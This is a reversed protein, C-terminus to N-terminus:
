FTAKFQFSLLFYVVTYERFLMEVFVLYKNSQKPFFLVREGMIYLLKRLMSAFNMGKKDVLYRDFWSHVM